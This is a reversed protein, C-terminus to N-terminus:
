NCKFSAWENDFYLLSLEVFVVVCKHRWLFNVFVNFDFIVILQQYVLM